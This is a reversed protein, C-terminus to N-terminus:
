DATQEQTRSFRVGQGEGHVSLPADRDRPFAPFRPTLNTRLGGIQCPPPLCSVGTAIRLEADCGM